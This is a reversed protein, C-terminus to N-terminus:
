LDEIHKIMNIYKKIQLLETDCYELHILTNAGTIESQLMEITVDQMNFPLSNYKFITIKISSAYINANLIENILFVIHKSNKCKFSNITQETQEIDQGYFYYCRDNRNYVIYMTFTKNSDNNNTYEDVKLVFHTGQSIDIM